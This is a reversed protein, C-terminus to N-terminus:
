KNKQVRRTTGSIHRRCEHTHVHVFMYCSGTVHTHEYMVHTAILGYLDKKNKEWLKSLMQWFMKKLLKFLQKLVVVVVVVDVVLTQIM